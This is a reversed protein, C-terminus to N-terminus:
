RITTRVKRTTGAANNIDSGTGTFLDFTGGSGFRRVVEYRGASDTRARSAIVRDGGNPRQYFVTVLQNRRKPLTTGTFRYTRVGVRVVRLNISTRVTLVTSPSDVSRGQQDTSRVYLRTNGCPGVTFEIRGNSDAIGERAQAYTTSPRSYAFLRMTTGPSGTAVVRASQQCDITTPSTTVTPTAPGASPSPTASASPTVSATPTSGATPVVVPLGGSPSASTSPSPSATADACTFAPTAQRTSAQGSPAPTMVNVVTFTPSCEPTSTSGDSSAVQVRYTGPLAGNLDFTTVLATGSTRETNSGVITGVTPTAENVLRVTSGVPFGRGSLTSRVTSANSGASPDLRDIKITTIRLGDALRAVQRDTNTVVLDRFGPNITPDIRITRSLTTATNPIATGNSATAATFTINPDVTTTGAFFAQVTTGRAFTTGNVRFEQGQVGAPLQAVNTGTVTPANAFLSFCGSCTDGASRDTGNYIFVDYRGPNPPAQTSSAAFTFAATITRTPAPVGQGEVVNGEIVDLQAAPLGVTDTRILEVQTGAGSPDGAPLFQTTTTFTVNTAGATTSAAPPNASVIPAASATTPALTVVLAALTATAAAGALQRRLAIKM